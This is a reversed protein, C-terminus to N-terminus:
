TGARELCVMDIIIDVWERSCKDCLRLGHNTYGTNVRLCISVDMWGATTDDDVVECTSCMKESIIM